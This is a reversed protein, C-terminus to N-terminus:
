PVAQAAREIVVDLPIRPPDFLTLMKTTDGTLSADQGGHPVDFCVSGRELSEHIAEALERLTWITPHCINVVNPPVTAYEVAEVTYRVVDEVAIVQLRADPTPGLSEGAAIKRAIRPIWGRAEDNAHFRRLHIAPSRRESCVHNLFAEQAFRALAYEGKPQPLDTERQPPLDGAAYVSGTAGNVILARGAYREALRAIGTFNTVWTLEPHAPDWCEFFVVDVDPLDAPDDRTVDFAHTFVGRDKLIARKGADHFRAAGHVQCGHLLLEDTLRRGIMGTCGIVMCRMSPELCRVGAPVM